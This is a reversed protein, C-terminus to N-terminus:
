STMTTALSVFESGDLGDFEVVQAPRAPHQAFFTGPCALDELVTQVPAADIGGFEVHDHLQRQGGFILTSDSKRGKPFRSPETLDAPCCQTRV